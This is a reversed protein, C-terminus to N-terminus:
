VKALGGFLYRVTTWFAGFRGEGDRRLYGTVFDSLEADSMADDLFPEIVGERLARLKPIDLGLREITTSAAMDTPDAPYIRGDGTFAFHKDCDAALPSVLLVPDFWDGKLNGCHRPEGKKIRHQCSCLLNEFDLGDVAPDSQPRFHEIHSDEEMLRRECYCCLYGQETMLAAKIAAKEVGRLEAYSPQWDDNALAKWDTLEQPESGKNIPKM